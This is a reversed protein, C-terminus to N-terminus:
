FWGEPTRKGRARLANVGSAPLLDAAKPEAMFDVGLFEAVAAYYGVSVGPDGAEIRQLTNRGIFIRTALAERTLSRTLRARRLALGLLQLRNRSAEPIKAEAPRESKMSGTYRRKDAKCGMDPDREVSDAGRSVWWYHVDITPQGGIGAQHCHAVDVVYDRQM